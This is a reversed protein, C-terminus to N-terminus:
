NGDIAQERVTPPLSLSNVMPLFELYLDGKAKACQKVFVGYRKMGETVFEARWRDSVVSGVGYAKCTASFEECVAEPSFPPRRERVAEMVAVDREKHGIALTARDGGSGDAFDLFGAYRIGGVRPLEYRGPVVVADLAERSIFSEVDSRFASHPQALPEVAGYESPQRSPM